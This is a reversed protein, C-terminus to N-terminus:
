NPMFASHETALFKVRCNTHGLEALITTIRTHERPNDMLELENALDPGFGITLLNKEFSLPRAKILYSHSYKSAKHVADLLRPWLETLNSSVPHAGQPPPAVQNEKRLHLDQYSIRTPSAENPPSATLKINKWESQMNKVDNLIRLRTAKWCYRDLEIMSTKDDGWAGCHRCNWRRIESWLQGQPTFLEEGCRGCFYSRRDVKHQIFTILLHGVIFFGSIFIGLLCIFHILGGNEVTTLKFGVLSIGFVVLPMRISHEM